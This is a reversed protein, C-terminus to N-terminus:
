WLIPKTVMLWLMICLLITYIIAGRRLNRVFKQQRFQPTDLTRMTPKFARALYVVSAVLLIMTTLIWPTDWNYPGLWMALLGFVILVHGAHKVVTIGSQFAHAYARFMDMNSTKEMKKLVPFLVFFPGISLIASLVHIYIITLYLMPM